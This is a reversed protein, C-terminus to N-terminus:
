AEEMLEEPIDFNAYVNQVDDHDEFMDMLKLMSTAHKGDLAVTNKPIRSLKASSVKLGKAELADRVAGLDEMATYVLAYGDDIEADLAGAEIAAEMVTDETLNDGELEIAGRREFMWAVSGTEGMNGGYKDFLHRIEGTTRNKNDTLIELFVAAGGPGYGEYTTEEYVVGPLEGTGKKIAKEINDKPMNSERANDLATRLRPNGGPDGGGIRAAITIEKIIKTFIKGRQADVKAKKHKITSWKSHGSM